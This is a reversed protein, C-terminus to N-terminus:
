KGPRRRPPSTSGDTPATSHPVAFPNPVEPLASNRLGDGPGGASGGTSPKFNRLEGLPGMRDRPEVRHPTILMNPRVISRTISDSLNSMVETAQRNIIEGPKLLVSGDKQTEIARLTTEGTSPNLSIATSGGRTYLLVNGASDRDLNTGSGHKDLQKNLEKIFLDLKAPDASLTKLSEKLQDMNGDVLAGQLATMLDRDAEPILDSLEAAMTEKAKTRDADTVASMIQRVASENIAHVIHEPLHELKRNTHGESIIRGVPHSSTDGPGEGPNASRLRDVIGARIGEVAAHGMVRAAAGAGEASISGIISAGAGEAVARAMSSAAGGPGETGVSGIISAGAGEAVARAMSSAAGGPGETGVSGIISASAGKAVARGITSAGGQEDSDSNVASGNRLTDVVHDSLTQSASNDSTTENAVADNSQ